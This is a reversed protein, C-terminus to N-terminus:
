NIYTRRNLTGNMWRKDLYDQIANIADILNNVKPWEYGDAFCNWNVSMGKPGVSLIGVLVQARDRPVIKWYSKEKDDGSPIRYTTLYDELQVGKKDM